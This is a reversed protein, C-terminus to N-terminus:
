RAKGFMVLGVPRGNLLFHNKREGELEFGASAIIKMMAVNERMCGAEIKRVNGRLPDLLFQCAGRWAEGGMGLGWCKKEGLLIGVDSVDNDDDHVASLNGIHEGTAALYIGWIHSKSGTFGDVYRLQTKLNHSKHRQESFKVVEDDILWGIQRPTSKILPRLSLRSTSLTPTTM